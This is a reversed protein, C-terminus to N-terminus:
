RDNQNKTHFLDGSVLAEDIVARRRLLQRREGGRQSLLETLIAAAEKQVTGRHHSPDAAIERSRADIDRTLSLAARQDHCGITTMERMPEEIRLAHHRQQAVLEGL